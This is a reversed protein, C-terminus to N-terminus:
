NKSQIVNSKIKLSLIILSISGVFIIMITQASWAIWGIALGIQSSTSIGYMVLTNAVIVPYLGLGGATIMVGITSMVLASLGAVMGLNETQPLSFFCLYMMLYYLTWIALTYIIFLVPNKIKVISIVGAWLGRAFTVIKSGVTTKLLKKRKVFLLAFFGAFLILVISLLLWNNSIADVKERFRSTIHTQLYVSIKQFELLLTLFFLFVYFLMDFTREIIVTGLSINVPIKEEKYLLSCRILEGSRPIGLNAFYGVMVSYFTNSNKPNFGSTKLLLKWRLARVFHSLVGLLITIIVWFYNANKFSQYISLREQHSLDKLSLWAILLGLGLAFGIKFVNGIKKKM